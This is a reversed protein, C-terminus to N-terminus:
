LAERQNKPTSRFYYWLLLSMLVTLSLGVASGMPWNRATLFQIQILNGLLLSKAGGLLDPIYFLTMAPLFTLLVASFIGSRTLPLIIRFFIVVKNAGLDQAAELLRVDLKEMNAFLPLIVFPLLNYVLGILVAINTYLLQLPVHIIHLHLLITNLIGNAQIVTIIAFSRLLSSTWFPIVVFLAMLPKIRDSLKTLFYAFPYGLILCIITVWFSLQLSRWFVKLYPLTFLTRYNDLTFKWLYFHDADHQLFSFILICLLPCLAFLFLWLYVISIASTKFVRDKNKM